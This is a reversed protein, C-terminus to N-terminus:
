AAVQTKNQSPLSLVVLAWKGDSSPAVLDRWRSLYASLNAAPHKETGMLQAAKLRGLIEPQTKPGEALFAKLEARIRGAKSDEKGRAGGGSLGRPRIKSAAGKKRKVSRTRPGRKSSADAGDSKIPRDYWNLLGYAGNPLRHFISSSKRITNRVSVIATNVNKTDFTYGGKELAEYIERPTAPGLGAARRMELYERAATTIPKGYFSDSRLLGISPSTPVMVDPYLPETGARACLRNIVQKTEAVQRELDALDKQLAEIAPTFEERM